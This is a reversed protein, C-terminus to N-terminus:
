GAARLPLTLRIATGAARDRLLLDGGLELLRRRLRQVGSDPEAFTEPTLGPGNDRVDFVMTDGELAFDLAVAGGGHDVVNKLLDALGQELVIARDRPITLAGLRPSSLLTLRDGHLRVANKVIDVAGVNHEQLLLQRRRTYTTERLERGVQRPDHGADIRRAASEVHSHFDGLAVEYSRTLAETEVRVAIRCLWAIGKGTLFWVVAWVAYQVVSRVHAGTFEWHHSLGIILLPHLVITVVLGCEIVRRRLPNRFGDWPYFAFVTLPILAYNGMPVGNGYAAFDGPALLHALLLQVVFIMAIRVFTWAHGRTLPGRRYVVLVALVLHLLGLALVVPLAGDRYRDNVASMVLNTAQLLLVVAEFPKILKNTTAALLEVDPPRPVFPATPSFPM